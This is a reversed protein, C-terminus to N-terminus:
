YPTCHALTYKRLSAPFVGLQLTQGLDARDASEGAAHRWLDARSDVVLQVKDLLETEGWVEEGDM